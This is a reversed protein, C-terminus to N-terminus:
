MREDQGRVPQINFASKGLGLWFDWEFRFIYIRFLCRLTIALHYFYIERAHLKKFIVLVSLHYAFFKFSQKHGATVTSNLFM